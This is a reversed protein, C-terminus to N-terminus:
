SPLQKCPMNILVLDGEKVRKQFTSKNSSDMISCKNTPHLSYKRGNSFAANKLRKIVFYYPIMATLHFPSGTCFVREEDAKSKKKKQM